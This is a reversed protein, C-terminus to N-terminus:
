LSRHKKSLGDAWIFEPKEDTGYRRPFTTHGSKETDLIYSQDDQRQFTSCRRGLLMVPPGCFVEGIKNKKGRLAVAADTSSV